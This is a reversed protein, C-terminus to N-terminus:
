TLEVISQGKSILALLDPKNDAAAFGSLGSLYGAATKVEMVPTTQPEDDDKELDPLSEEERLFSLLIVEWNDDLMACTQAENDCNSYHMCEGDEWQKTIDEKDRVIGQIRTKGIGLENAIKRCSQRSNIKKLVAVRQELDLVTRKRSNSSSGRSAMVSRAHLKHTSSRLILQVHVKLLCTM